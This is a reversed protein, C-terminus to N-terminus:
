KNTSIFYCVFGAYTPLDKEDNAVWKLEQLYFDKFWNFTMPADKPSRSSLRIFIFPVALQAKAQDIAAALECLTKNSEWQSSNKDELWKHHESGIEM